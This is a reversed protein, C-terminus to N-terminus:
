KWIFTMDKWKEWIQFYYICFKYMTTWPWNQQPSQLYCHFKTLDAASSTSWDAASKAPFTRPPSQVGRRVEMKTSKHVRTWWFHVEFHVPSLQIRTPGVHLGDSDTPTRPPSPPDAETGGLHLGRRLGNQDLQLWTLGRRFWTSGRRVWTWWNSRWLVGYFRNQHATVDHGEQGRLSNATDM